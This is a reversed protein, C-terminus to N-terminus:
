IDCKFIVIDYWTWSDRQKQAMHIAYFAGFCLKLEMQKLKYM